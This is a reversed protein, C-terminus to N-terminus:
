KRSRTTSTDTARGETQLLHTCYLCYSSQGLTNHAGSAHDSHESYMCGCKLVQRVGERGGWDAHSSHGKLSTHQNINAFSMNIDDRTLAACWKILRVSCSCCCYHLVEVCQYPPFPRTSDTSTPQLWAALMSIFRIAAECKTPSGSQLM